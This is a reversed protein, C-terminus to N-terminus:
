LGTEGASRNPNLICGACKSRGYEPFEREELFEVYVKYWENRKEELEGDRVPNFLHDVIGDPICQLMEYQASKKKKMLEWKMVSVLKKDRWLGGERIVDRAKKVIENELIRLGDRVTQELSQM